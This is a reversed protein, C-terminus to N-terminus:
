GLTQWVIFLGALATLLGIIRLAEEPTELIRGVYRKMQPAFLAYIAGEMVLALGLATALHQLM